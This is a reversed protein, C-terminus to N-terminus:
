LGMRTMEREVIADFNPEEMRRRQYSKPQQGPEGGKRASGVKAEQAKRAGVQEGKEEAEARAQNLRNWLNVAAEKDDLKYEAILRAFEIEEEDTKLTGTVRLEGLFESFERDESSVRQREQRDLGQLEEAIEKKAQLIIAKAARAEADNAPKWGGIILEKKGQDQDSISKELRELRQEYAQKGEGLRKAVQREIYLQVETDQHFPVKEPEKKIVQAGPTPEAESGDPLEEVPKHEELDKIVQDPVEVEDVPRLAM